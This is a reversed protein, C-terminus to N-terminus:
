PKKWRRAILSSKINRVIIYIVAVHLALNSGTNEKINM